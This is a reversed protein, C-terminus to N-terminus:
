PFACRIALMWGGLEMENSHGLFESSVRRETLVAASARAPADISRSGPGGQRQTRM